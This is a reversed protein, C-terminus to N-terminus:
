LKYDAGKKLFGLFETVDRTFAKTGILKEEPTYIVYLPLEISNFRNKQFNKNSQYPENRRDTYLRVLIMNELYSRIEKKSFMNLEMWRCNTCTYGTFDIFIMKKKEKALKLADQYNDMWILEEESASISKASTSNSTGATTSGSEKTSMLENYNPPPLFADLEGLPKGNLGILLYFTIAAFIVAFVVRPTGISDVPADHHLRFVGLIYLIIMVTCALWISLFLERPLVGWMWVLDANSLFKIAAAIELFGMVVKINNMWGGARPVKNLASPFLALLFFPAAFVASFALMGAIPYFWEGSGVSVLTTGVFPVTCTFSTLSFTLGMLLVSIIGSGQSKSNLKNLLSTPLQIEFAGFLNLAFVIFITAIGLNLWPNTALDQIGSPGYIGAFIVGIGTFTFMIGLAYVLSDVLGKSKKKESRKTFFSVTIPIMPFVCPTLLSLAGQLMAFWIYSWFGRKQMEISQEQSETKQVQSGVTAKQTTQISKEDKVTTATASSQVSETPNLGTESIFIEKSINIKFDTPPLCSTETCQQTYLVIQIKSSNFDIDKSARLPIEFVAQGYYTGIRMSFASDYKIKPPTAKIKGELKFFNNPNFSIETLIPGVYDDALKKNLEYIHWGKDVTVTLQIAFEEGAKVILKSPKAISKFHKDDAAKVFIANFILLTSIIWFTILNKM